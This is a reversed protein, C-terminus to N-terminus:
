RKHFFFFFFREWFDPLMPPPRGLAKREDEEEEEEGDGDAMGAIISMQLKLTLHINIFCGKWLHESQSAQYFAKRFFTRLSSSDWVVTRM